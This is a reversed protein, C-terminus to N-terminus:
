LTCDVLCFCDIVLPLLRLLEVLSQEKNDHNFFGLVDSTASSEGMINDGNVDMVDHSEEHVDAGVLMSITTVDGSSKLNTGHEGFSIDDLLSSDREV